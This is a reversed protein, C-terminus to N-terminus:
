NGEEKVGIKRAITLFDWELIDNAEAILDFEEGDMEAWKLLYCYENWNLIISFNVGAAERMVGLACMGGETDRLSGKIQKVGAMSASILANRARENM